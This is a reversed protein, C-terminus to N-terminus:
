VREELLVGAVCTAAQKWCNAAAANIEVRIGASALESYQAARKECFTILEDVRETQTM